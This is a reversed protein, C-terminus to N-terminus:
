FSVRINNGGCYVVCTDVCRRVWGMGICCCLVSYSFRNLKVPIAIVRRFNISVSSSGEGKCHVIHFPWGVSLYDVGVSFQNQQEEGAAIRTTLSEQLDM